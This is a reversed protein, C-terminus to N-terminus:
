LDALCVLPQLNEGSLYGLRDGRGAAVQDLDVTDPRDDGASQPAPRPAHASEGGCSGESVADADGRDLNGPCISNTMAQQAATIPLEVESQV